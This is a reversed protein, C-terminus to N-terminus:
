FKFIWEKNIKEFTYVNKDVAVNVTDAGYTKPEPLRQIAAKLNKASLKNSM